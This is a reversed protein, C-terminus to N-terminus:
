PLFPTPHSLGSRGWIQSDALRQAVLLSVDVVLALLIARSFAAGVPRGFIRITRLHRISQALVAFLAAAAPAVYHPGPWVVLCYGLLVTLLPFLPLRFRADRYLFFVGPM